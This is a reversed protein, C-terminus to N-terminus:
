RMTPAPRIAPRQPIPWLGRDPADHGPLARISSAARIVAPEAGAAGISLGQRPVPRFRARVNLELEHLFANDGTPISM